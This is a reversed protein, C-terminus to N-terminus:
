FFSVPDGATVLASWNPHLLVGGIMAALYPNCGFKRASSFGLVVPFFYFASDAIFNLIYYEQSTDPLGLVVLITLVAKIMGAGTILPIIPAFIGSVMDLIKASLKQKEENEAGANESLDGVLKIVEDYVKNVNPGIIIQTQAGVEKVAMVDKLAEIEKIQAKGM